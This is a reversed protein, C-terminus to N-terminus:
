FKRQIRYYNGDRASKMYTFSTSKSSDWSEIHIVIIWGFHGTLTILYMRKQMKDM